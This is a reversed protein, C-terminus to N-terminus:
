DNKQGGADLTDAIAPAYKLIYKYKTGPDASKLVRVTYGKEIIKEAEALVLAANDEDCYTLLCDIDSDSETKDYIELLDIYVAFGIASSRKGLKAILNDYRGGSLISCPIGKVFGSFTIGNYYNMDNILSFDIKIKDGWAFHSLATFIECLEDYATQMKKNVILSSIKERCEEFSGYIRTLSAIKKANERGISESDCIALVTGYDKKSIASLLTEKVSDRIEFSELLGAVFGMHSIDMVYEDSISELSKAALTLVESLVFLDIDGIYELGLQMIEKYEGAGKDGRYVNETYYVKQFGEKKWLANKAISLTVDPKLAMLKGSLDTFTIVNESKLFSKNEAYLDYEEFKQMKYKSYGHHEYLVRLDYIAKENKSLFQSINKM